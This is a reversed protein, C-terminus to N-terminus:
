YERQVLPHSNSTESVQLIVITRIEGTEGDVLGCRGIKHGLKCRGVFYHRFAVFYPYQSISYLRVIGIVRAPLTPLSTTESHPMRSYLPWPDSGSWWQYSRHRGRCVQTSVRGLVLGISFPWRWPTVTAGSIKGSRSGIGRGELYGVWTGERNPPTASVLFAGEFLPAEIMNLAPCFFLAKLLKQFREALFM